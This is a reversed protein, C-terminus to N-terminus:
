ACSRAVRYLWTSPALYYPSLLPLQRSERSAASIFSNCEDKEVAAARRERTSQKQHTTNQILKLITEEEWKPRFALAALTSRMIWAHEVQSTTSPSLSTPLQLKQASQGPM